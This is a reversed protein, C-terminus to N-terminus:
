PGLLRLPIEYPFAKPAYPGLFMPVKLSDPAKPAYSGLTNPPYTGPLSHTNPAYSGLLKLLRIPM